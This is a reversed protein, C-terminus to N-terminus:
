MNEVGMEFNSANRKCAGAGEQWAFGKGHKNIGNSSKAKLLSKAQSLNLTPPLHFFLYLHDKIGGVAVPVMKQNRCIGAIYSWLQPQVDKSIIKRRDKTSFVVHVHSRTFAHSM